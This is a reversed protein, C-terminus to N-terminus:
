IQDGVAFPRHWTTNAGSWMAHVGPLGGVYGSFIRNLPFVFSPPAIIGSYRTGAAYEPNCWLPNDDGIGHAYHRVSARPAETCWPEVTDTIKVGILRRLADLADDTIRAFQREEGLVDDTPATTM